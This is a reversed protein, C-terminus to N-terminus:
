PNNGKGKADSQKLRVLSQTKVDVKYQYRPNLRKAAVQIVQLNPQDPHRQQAVTLARTKLQERTPLDRKHGTTIAQYIHIIKGSEEFVICLESAVHPQSVNFHGAPKQNGLNMIEDELIPSLYALKKACGQMDFFISVGITPPSQERQFTLNASQALALRTPTGGPIWVVWAEVVSSM